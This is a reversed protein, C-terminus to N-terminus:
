EIMGEDSESNDDSSFVELAKKHVEIWRQDNRSLKPLPVSIVKGDSKQISVDNNSSKLYSADVSFKGDASNWSRPRLNPASLNLDGPPILPLLQKKYDNDDFKYYDLVYATSSAGIATEYTYTGSAHLLGYIQIKKGDAIGKTPYGRVVFRGYKINDHLYGHFEDDGTIQSVKILTQRYIWDPIVDPHINRHSDVWGIRRTKESEIVDLLETWLAMKELKTKASKFAVFVGKNSKLKRFKKKKEESLSSEALVDFDGDITSDIVFHNNALLLLKQYDVKRKSAANQIELNVSEADLYGQKVYKKLVADPIPDGAMSSVSIAALLICSGSFWAFSNNM